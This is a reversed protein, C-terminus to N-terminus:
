KLAKGLTRNSCRTSPLFTQAGKKGGSHYNTDHRIGPTKETRHHMVASMVRFDYPSSTIELWSGDPRVAQVLHITTAAPEVDIGRKEDTDVQYILPHNRVAALADDYSRDLFLVSLENLLEKRQPAGGPMTKVTVHARRVKKGRKGANTLDHLELSEMYRHIKLGQPTFVTRGIELHSM